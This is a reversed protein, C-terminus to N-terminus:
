PKDTESSAPPLATPPEHGQAHSGNGADRLNRLVKLTLDEVLAPFAADLAVTVAARILEEESVGTGATVPTLEPEAPSQVATVPAAATVPAPPAPAAVTVPAAVPQTVPAPAETTQADRRQGKALQAEAMLPKITELMVSAEFPKKLIAAAGAARAEQEDFVELMGATLVIRVHDHKPHNKVYRCIDLGSRGPLFVDAIIIDPDVDGLRLLATEGDTVSVIEYGEDRLIREGMRQAHPSDDALLIRNM